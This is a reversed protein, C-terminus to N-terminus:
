GPVKGARHGSRRSIPEHCVQGEAKGALWVPHEDGLQLSPASSAAHVPALDGPPSRRGGRCGDRQRSPAPAPCLLRLRPAGRLAM